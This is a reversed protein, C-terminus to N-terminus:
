TTPMMAKMAGFYLLCMRTIVDLRIARTGLPTAGLGTTADTIAEIVPLLAATSFGPATATGAGWKAYPANVNPFFKVTDFNGATRLATRTANSHMYVAVFLADVSIKSDVMNTKFAAWFAIDDLAAADSLAKSLKAIDPNVSLMAPASRTGKIDALSYRVTTPTTDFGDYPTFTIAGTTADVTWKGETDVDLSLSGVATGDPLAKIGGPTSKPV